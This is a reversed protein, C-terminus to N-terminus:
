STDLKSHKTRVRACPSARLGSWRQDLTPIAPMEETPSKVLYSIGETNTCPRPGAEVAGVVPSRVTQNRRPYLSIRQDRHVVRPGDEKGDHTKRTWFLSARLASTWWQGIRLPSEVIMAHLLPSTPRMEMNWRKGVKVGSGIRRKVRAQAAHLIFNSVFPVVRENKSRSTSCRHELTASATYFYPLVMHCVPTCGIKRELEGM